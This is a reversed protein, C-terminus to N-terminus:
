GHIFVRKVRQSIATLAEYPITGMDRAHDQLPRGPGFVTVRDGPACPIGTVDVMCMDMCISGVFPAPRGHLLVHGAGHGMSRFLGDAYGIPLVAIRQAAQVHHRRGYGVSDGPPVEKVQAIATRLHAAPRLLDSEEADYGVGHLGIGPRVLDLHAEPFRSIAASNAIHRRPRHGLVAELRDAAQNFRHLQERTFADHAPDESAALHSFVTSVQVFPARGLAELLPGLHDPDFGLRHMGTDIKLHVPPADAHSRAHDIAAQLSRLDYVVAELRFRHMVEQPVPEPNMVLIPLAIGEQRLAIGEDAYAVGLMDVREYAFLRALETAGSGYGFAKVMALVGTGPRLRGRFHNLNHRVAELDIELVTGHVQRQWREVVRELGLSRAGKVLVAADRLEETDVGRLLAEADPFFRARAAFHAAHAQLQPGVGLVREVRARRLLAAVRDYLLEQVEGSDHIDGLVVIREHDTGHAALHDLAIALSATDNSYADNILLSGNVGDLLELRMAVPHLHPLRERLRDPTYGLHLLLTLCTMANAVSAHDDFPLHVTFEGGGHAITLRLGGEAREERLLHVFASGERSWTRTLLHRDLGVAQVAAQLPAIDGPYVLVQADRFLELKERAKTGEDPFNEGHAPGLSTFVGITPRIIPRLRAMEGPRSIGAEFIGMTHGRHLGWVSLPVGVQSNWSGPSRAIHEDRGLLQTLWEKVVTKGNSGTIGVVPVQFHGRHWAALRQLADLTDPVVITNLRDRLGAPPAESVLAHRVGRAAMDHLFRHGDHREGRLAVFLTDPQVQSRRSDLLLDVVPGDGLPAHLVGGVVEAIRSLLYPANM